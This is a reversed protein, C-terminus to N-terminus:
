RLEVGLKQTADDRVKQQLENIEENTLSRDMSRYTIRYCHSEKNTKPHKFKDVCEVEEVLDGAVQLLIIVIHSTLCQKLLISFALAHFSSVNSPDKNTLTTFLFTSTPFFCTTLLLHSLLM